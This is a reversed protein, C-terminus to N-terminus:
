LDFNVNRTNIFSAEEETNDNSDNLNSQSLLNSNQNNSISNIRANNSNSFIMNNASKLRSEEALEASQNTARYIRPGKSAGATNYKEVIQCKNIKKSRRNPKKREVDRTNSNSVKTLEPTVILNNGVLSIEGGENTKVTPPLGLGEKVAQIRNQDLRQIKQPDLLQIRIDDEENDFTVERIFKELMSDPNETYYITDGPKVSFPNYIRNLKCLQHVYEVSNYLDFSVLDMRMSHRETLVLIRYEPDFDYPTYYKNSLLDVRYEDENDGRIVTKSKIIQSDM